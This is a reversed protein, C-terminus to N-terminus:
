RGPSIGGTPKVRDQLKMGPIQVWASDAWAYDV